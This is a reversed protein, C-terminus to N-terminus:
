EYPAMFDILAKQLWKVSEQDTIILLLGNIDRKEFKFITEMIIARQSPDFSEVFHTYDDSKEHIVTPPSYTVFTNLLESIKGICAGILINGIEMLVENELSVMPNPSFDDSDDNSLISILDRGSRSPFVMISSGRFDGWFHQSVISTEGAFDVKKTVYNPIEGVNIVQVNPVSLLIFIDIVEALDATANGFAINMIEQLIEKEEESFLQDSHM